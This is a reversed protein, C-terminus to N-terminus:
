KLDLMVPNVQVQTEPSLKFDGMVLPDRIGM